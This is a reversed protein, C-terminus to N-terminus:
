AVEARERGDDSEKALFSQVIHTVAMLSCVTCGIILSLYGWATSIKIAAYPVRIQVGIMLFSYYVTAICIAIIIIESLINLYKIVKKPMLDLLITITIHEKNRHGIAIGLWSIWVFLFKGLEESWFLSDNFVKRMVVQLFIIAVMGLFMAVLSFEYVVDLIKIIKKM